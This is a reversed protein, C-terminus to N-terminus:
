ETTPVMESSGRWCASSTEMASLSEPSECSVFLSDVLVVSFCLWCMIREYSGAGTTRGCKRHGREILWHTWGNGLVAVANSMKLTVNPLSMMCIITLCVFTFACCFGGLALYLHYSVVTDSIYRKRPMMMGMPTWM